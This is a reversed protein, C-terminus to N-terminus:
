RAILAEAVNDHWQHGVEAPTGVFRTVLLRAEAWDRAKRGFANAISEAVEDTETM